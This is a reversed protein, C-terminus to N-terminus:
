EMGGMAGAQAMDKMMGAGAQGAQLMAAAQQAEQRAAALQDATERSRLVRAPAGRADALAEVLADPDLREVYRPDLAALPALDQVIRLIATGEAAQQAQAAASKYTVQLEQGELEPPPPPLQGARWLLAFRRQVKPALYEGQVRGMYPAWLRLREENITAVETATMGTRGVLSMLQYHFANRIEEAKSQRDQLTLGINGSVDLPRLLPNGQLNVGQYIVAGPRVAGNYDFASRDPALIPPDAAMQAARMVADDMRALMQAAPLADGALGIGYVEGSGVDWRPMYFPMEAYGGERVVAHEVETVHRSVWRKGRAGLAGRRWQDNPLVHHYFAFRDRSGKRALDALKPPVAAEGFQAMAQEATLFYKRVVEVVEGRANIDCCVEALNLAVDTIGEGPVVEDYTPANGFAALDSYIQLSADYFRSSGASFSALVRDSVTDLWVKAPHWDMLDTDPVALGFWRQTPNTLTGYLGAAFNQLAKIQDSSMPRIARAANAPDDAGFGKRLPRFLQGILQWDAEHRSRETKLEGWRTIALHALPSNVRVPQMLSM